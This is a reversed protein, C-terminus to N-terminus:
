HIDTFVGSDGDVVLDGIQLSFTEVLAIHGIQMAAVIIKEALDFLGEFNDLTIRFGHRPEASTM